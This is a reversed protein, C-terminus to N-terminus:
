FAIQLGLPTGNFLQETKKKRFFECSIVEELVRKQNIKGVKNLLSQYLHNIKFKVINRLVVKKYFAQLLSDRLRWVLLDQFYWHVTAEPLLVKYITTKSIFCTIFWLPPVLKDHRISKVIKLKVQDNNKRIHFSYLFINDASNSTFSPDDIWYVLCNRRFVLM